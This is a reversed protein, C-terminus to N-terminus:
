PIEEMSRAVEFLLSLAYLKISMKRKFRLSILIMQDFCTVCFANCTERKRWFPIVDNIFNISLFSISDNRVFKLRHKNPFRLLTM